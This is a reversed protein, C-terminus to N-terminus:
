IRKKKMDLLLTRLSKVYLTETTINLWVRKASLIV